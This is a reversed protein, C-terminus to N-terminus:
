QGHRRAHHVDDVRQLPVRRRELSRYATLYWYLYREASELGPEVAYSEDMRYRYRVYDLYAPHGSAPVEPMIPDTTFMRGHRTLAPAASPEEEGVEDLLRVLLALEDRLAVRCAAFRDGALGPDSRDIALVLAGIEHTEVGHTRM